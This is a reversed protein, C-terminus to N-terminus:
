AGLLLALLDRVVPPLRTPDIYFITVVGVCLMVFAAATLSVRRRRRTTGQREAVTELYSMGGLVPVPLGREVDDITKFTGQVLDLLLILGIAVGLGLACGILAVILINPETPRPPPNAKAVQQVTQQRGLASVIADTERLTQNALELNKKTEDLATRKREYLVFGEARQQMRQRENEVQTELATCAAEAAVLAQERATVEALLQDYAPNPVLGDADVKGDGILAQLKKEAEAIARRTRAHETTGPKLNELAERYYLLTTLIVIGEPTKKAEELLAEADPRVRRETRALRERDQQLLARAVDREQQKTALVERPLKEQDRTLQWQLITLDIAPDIGYQKELAAKETVLQDYLARLRNVAENALAREEEAPARLEGLRKAIWTEILANLFASSREGDRDKYTVRIQAWDRDRAFQNTDTVGVREMVKREEQTREFPDAIQAEPWGLKKMTEGVALPITLRATDVISRFPDEANRAAPQGPVQQHQLLTEAVYYRPIFFAVLGGIVLGVLSVPIVQWRRRKLLDLYRQLSLQPIEVQTM